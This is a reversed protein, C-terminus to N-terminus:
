YWCPPLPYCHLNCPGRPGSLTGRDSQQAYTKNEETTGPTCMLGKLGLSQFRTLTESKTDLNKSPGGKNPPPAIKKKTPARVRERRRQDPHCMRPDLNLGRVCLLALFVRSLETLNHPTKDVSGM